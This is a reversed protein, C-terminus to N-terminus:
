ASTREPQVEYRMLNIAANYDRNIKLGCVPCIYTRDNETLDKKKSGCYSCTKSSAFWRDAQVFEIGNWECKYKMQRVFESWGQEQIAKAKKHNKMLGQVNLDEMTIRCPRMEVLQHTTQHIYDKQINAIHYYLRKIQLKLKKINETEEYSGNVRYKRSLKRQLHKLKSRLKRLKRSKNKNHFVIHKGDFAVIALDKLGLDIGMKENTLTPAQIECEVGLSLIWKGSSTYKIRPNVFKVKNGLPIDYNTKYAVKGIVPVQVHTESFWVKGATDCLPFSSKATKRKKKKPFGSVERFFRQYANELDSCVRKLTQSSIESLWATEEQQKLMPLLYNMGFASLHKEGNKYREEQISLMRNWIFRSAGIHQWMKQEQEKTPYLRIIMGKYVTQM